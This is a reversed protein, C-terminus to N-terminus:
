GSEEHSSGELGEGAHTVRGDGEGSGEARKLGEGWGFARKGADHSQAIKNYGASGSAWDESRIQRSLIEHENTPNTSGLTHAVIAPNTNPLPAASAANAGLNLIALAPILIYPRM